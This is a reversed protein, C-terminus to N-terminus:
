PAANRAYVATIKVDSSPMTFTAIPLFTSAIEASGSTVVWKYFTTGPAPMRATLSVKTGPIYQGTGTGNEVSCNFSNTEVWQWVRIYDVEFKMPFETVSPDGGQQGIALNVRMYHPVRFPNIGNRGTGDAKKLDYHNVLQGDLSLDIKNTDWDMIWTHFQDSWAPGGKAKASLTPAAWQQRGNMVNFLLKDKYYEMMDIEGGAPWGNAVGTTWWAPWSGSRIDIRGRMEFRGYLFPKLGITSIAASTYNTGGLHKAELVLVGNTCYGNDRDLKADRVMSSGGDWKWVNPVIPPGNRDFEDGWVFQWGGIAAPATTAQLLLTLAGFVLLCLASLKPPHNV